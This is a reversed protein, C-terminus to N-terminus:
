ITTSIMSFLSIHSCVEWNWELQTQGFFEKPPASCAKAHLDEKQKVLWCTFSDAADEIEKQEKVLDQVNLVVCM